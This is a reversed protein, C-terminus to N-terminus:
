SWRSLGESAMVTLAKNSIRPRTEYPKGPSITIQKKLRPAADAIQTAGAEGIAALAAAIESEVDTLWRTDHEPRENPDHRWLRGKGPAGAVIGAAIKRGCTSYEVRPMKM